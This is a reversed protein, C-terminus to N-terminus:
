KFVYFWLRSPNNWQIGLREGVEAAELDFYEDLESMVREVVLLGRGNGLLPRSAFAEVRESASRGKGRVRQRSDFRMLEAKSRSSVILRKGNATHFEAAQIERVVRATETITLPADLGASVQRSLWELPDIRSALEGAHTLRRDRIQMAVFDQVLSRIGNLAAAQRHNYLTLIATLLLILIFVSFELTMTM